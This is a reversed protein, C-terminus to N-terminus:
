RKTERGEVAKAETGRRKITENESVKAAETGKAKSKEMGRKSGAAPADQRFCCLVVGAPAFCRM